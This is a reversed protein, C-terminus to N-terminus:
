AGYYAAMTLQFTDITQTVGDIINATTLVLDTGSTGVSGDIRALTTSSGGADTPNACFRFSQAATGPSAGAATLGTGQWTEGALKAIVGSAAEGFELGNAFAGHAFTGASLTIEMLLTGNPASDASAPQTGSYLRLVGDRFIEQLAAGRCCCLVTAAAFAEATNVIGTLLTLTLAEVNQIVAGTVAADNAATTAGELNLIDHPAFGDTIFSGTSRTITDAGAGGDVMSFDAGIAWASVLANASLLKNRAGTSLRLTM